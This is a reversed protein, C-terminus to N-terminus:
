TASVQVPVALFQVNISKAASANAECAYAFSRVTRVTAGSTGDVVATTGANLVELYDGAVVAAAPVKLKGAGGLVLKAIEGESYTKQPTGIFHPVALTAPAATASQGDNDASGDQNNDDTNISPVIGYPQNANLDAHAEAYIVMRGDDEIVPVGLHVNSKVGGM